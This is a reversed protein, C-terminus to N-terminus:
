RNHDKKGQHAAPAFEIANHTVIRHTLRCKDSRLRAAMMAAAKNATAAQMTKPNRCPNSSCIPHYTMKSGPPTNAAAMESIMVLGIGDASGDTKQLRRMAILRAQYKQKLKAAM